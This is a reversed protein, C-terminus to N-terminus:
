LKTCVVREAVGTLTFYQITQTGMGVVLNRWESIGIAHDTEDEATYVAALEDPRQENQLDTIFFGGKNKQTFCYRKGNHTVDTINSINYNTAPSDTYKEGTSWNKITTLKSGNWYYAQGNAVIVTSNDSYAMRVRGSGSITALTKISSETVKQLKTGCVQYICKDLDNYIRGRSTGTTDHHKEIGFWSRMYYRAMGEGGTERPTPIFNVPLRDTYDFESRDVGQGSIYNIQLPPM